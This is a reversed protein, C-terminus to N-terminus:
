RLDWWERYAGTNEFLRTDGFAAEGEVLTNQGTENKSLQFVDYVTGIATRAEYTLSAGDIRIVQFMPTNGAVRDLSIDRFDPAGDGIMTETQDQTWIDTNKAGSASI